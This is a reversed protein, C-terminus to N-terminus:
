KTFDLNRKYTTTGGEVKEKFQNKINAANIVDNGAKFKINDEHNINQNVVEKDYELNINAVNENKIPPRSQIEPKPNKKLYASFDRFKIAIEHFNKAVIICCIVVAGATAVTTVTNEQVYKVTNELAYKAVEM